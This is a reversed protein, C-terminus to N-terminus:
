WYVLECGELHKLYICFIFHVEIREQLSDEESAPEPETNVTLERGDLTDAKSPLIKLERGDLTDAKSPLRKQCNM